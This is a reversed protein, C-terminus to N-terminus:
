DDTPRYPYGGHCVHKRVHRPLILNEKTIRNSKNPIHIQTPPRMLSFSNSEFGGDVNYEEMKEDLPTTTIVSDVPSISYKM